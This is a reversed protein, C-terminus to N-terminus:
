SKLEWPDDVLEVYRKLYRYRRKPEAASREKSPATPRTRKTTKTATAKIVTLVADALDLGGCILDM